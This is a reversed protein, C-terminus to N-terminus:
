LDTPPSRAGPPVSVTLRTIQTDRPYTHGGRSKAAALDDEFQQKLHPYRRYLTARPIGAQRALGSSYQGLGLMLWTM